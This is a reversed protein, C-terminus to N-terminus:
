RYDYTTCIYHIGKSKFAHRVSDKTIIKMEIVIYVPLIQLTISTTYIQLSGELKQM